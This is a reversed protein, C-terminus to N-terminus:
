RLGMVGEVEQAPTAIRRRMQNQYLTDLQPSRSLCASHTRPGRSSKRLERDRTRDRQRGHQHTRRAGTTDFVLGCRMSLCPCVYCSRLILLLWSLFEFRPRTSPSWSARASIQATRRTPAGSVTANTGARKTKLRASSCCVARMKLRLNEGLNKWGSPDTGVLRM